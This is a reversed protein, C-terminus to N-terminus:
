IISNDCCASKREDIPPSAAELTDANATHVAMIACLVGMVVQKKM